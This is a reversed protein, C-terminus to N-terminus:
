EHQPAEQKNQVNVIESIMQVKLEAGEETKLIEEVMLLKDELEKLRKTM